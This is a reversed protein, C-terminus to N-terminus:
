AEIPRNEGLPLREADDAGAFAERRWRAEIIAGTREGAEHHIDGPEGGNAYLAVIAELIRQKRADMAM